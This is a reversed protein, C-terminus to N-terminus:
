QRDLGALFYRQDAGVARALGRQHQVEVADEFTLGALHQHPAHLYGIAVQTPHPRRHPQHELRGVVM